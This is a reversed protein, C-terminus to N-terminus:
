LLQPGRVLVDLRIAGVISQGNASDLWIPAHKPCFPQGMTSAGNKERALGSFSFGISLKNRSFTKHIHKLM